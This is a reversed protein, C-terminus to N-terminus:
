RGVPYSVIASSLGTPTSFDNSFLEYFIRLQSVGAAPVKVPMSVTVSGAGRAVAFGPQAAAENGNQDVALVLISGGDASLYDLKAVVTVASGPALSTGSAPTVSILAITDHTPDTATPSAPGKGGCGAALAAGLALYLLRARRGRSLFGGAAGPSRRLRDV